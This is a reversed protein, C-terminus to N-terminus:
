LLACFAAVKSQQQRLVLGLLLCIPVVLAWRLSVSQHLLGSIGSRLQHTHQVLWFPHLLHTLQYAPNPPVDHTSLWLKWVLAAAAPGAALAALRRSGRILGSLGAALVTALSLMAGENKLLTAATLFLGALVVLEG